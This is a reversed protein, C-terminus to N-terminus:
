GTPYAFLRVTSHAPVTAGADPQQEWVRGPRTASGTCAGNGGPCEDHLEVVFGDETLTATAAALSANLVDPVTATASGATSVNLRVVYGDDLRQDQGPAPDQRAVYGPPLTLSHEPQQDVDFGAGQLLRRATSLPLGQVDPVDTAPPGTPKRCVRTPETGKLYSRESVLEPPTYRNPRCNRRADVPVTSLAMAPAPFDHSPVDALARSGFRAFIEAPWTGGEVRIRTRPPEMAVAGKPFGVWVAAALDPTYGVFWADAGRQTTGTKGATPRHLNAREGTGHEVVGQLAQTTLWAVPRDIARQGRPTGRHYLVTGDAETIRTVVTPARYIGGAALTAQVAAMELPSVEQTGLALSRIAPLYRRVGARRATNVVARPGVAAILRAYVVNVSYATADRLTMPGYDHSGYNDVPYPKPEGLRPKLVVRRGGPFTEDLDYGKAIATALVLQKFTSGPQRAADTALNFRAYATGDDYGRGGVLARIGGTAPDIAVVAAHPDGSSTLTDAVAQEAAVQWVPDLTTSIRLGGGFVAEAREAPNKGLVAFRRDHQLVDVVHDVFWPARWDNRRPAAVIGLPSARAATVRGGGALAQQQMLELVLDRRARARRPHRYPDYVAPSRLLAALMAAQGLRLGGVDIGFYRRSATQVGYAGNGFYVTNLYRELIEDKSYRQELQLAVGAESLKRRLTRASGVVANKALQQTITSGGERIEGARANRVVARAIARADVGAHAYFRADEVAVVADRLVRPMKRLAVIDRDQEGALEALVSGDAALVQSTQTPLPLTVGPTPQLRLVPACAATVAVALAAAVMGHTAIGAM